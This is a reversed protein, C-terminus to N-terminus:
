LGDTPEAMVPTKYAGSPLKINHNEIGLTEEKYSGSGNKNEHPPVNRYELDDNEEDQYWYWGESKREYFNSSENKSKSDQLFNHNQVQQADNANAYISIGFALFLLAKKFM